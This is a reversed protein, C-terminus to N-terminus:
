ILDAPALDSAIQTFGAFDSFLVAVREHRDAILTEGADLRDVIAAPLVNLLLERSRLREAELDSRVRELLRSNTDRIAEQQELTEELRRVRRSLRLLERRSSERDDPSPGPDSEM